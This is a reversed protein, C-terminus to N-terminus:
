YFCSRYVIRRIADWLMSIGFWYVPDKHGPPSDMPQPAGDYQPLATKLNSLLTLTFILLIAMMRKTRMERVEKTFSLSCIEYTKDKVWM